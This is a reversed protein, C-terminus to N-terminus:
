PKSFIEALDEALSRQPNEVVRGIEIENRYMVFTPVYVIDWNKCDKKEFPCEKDRNVGILEHNWHFMKALHLFYPIHAKSDSCWTGLFVAIRIHSTDIAMLRKKLVDDLEPVDGSIWNRFWDSDKILANFRGTFVPISDHQAEMNFSFILFLLLVLFGKM